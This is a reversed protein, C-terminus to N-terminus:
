KSLLRHLEEASLPRRFLLLEDMCGGLHRDRYDDASFIYDKHAWNGMRAPGLLPNHSPAFAGQSIQEGDVFHTVQRNPADYITALQVWQSYNNPKIGGKVYTEREGHMNLLLRDDPGLQWYLQGPRSLGDTTLIARIREEHRDLRVSAVLTLSEYEGPIELEAWDDVDDFELAWKGPWRGPQWRAGHITADFRGATAEARNLLRDPAESEPGDFTYYAILDASKRWGKSQQQWRALQSTKKTAPKTGDLLASFRTADFALTSTAIGGTVSDSAVRRAEGARLTEGHRASGSGNPLLRVQGAIVHVDTQKHRDVEVAFETGLDVVKATPTEITFGIAPRPVNAILKGLRLFGTNASRVEFEAPGEIVVKAGQAFRLETSGKKLQLLRHVFPTGPPPPSEVWGCDTGDSLTAFAGEMASSADLKHNRSRQFRDWALLGGLAVFYGILVLSVAISFFRISFAFRSRDRVGHTHSDVAVADGNAVLNTVDIEDLMALHQVPVPASHASLMVHLAVYDCYRDRSPEDALLLQELRAAEHHPLTGSFLRDVLDDFEPLSFSATSM